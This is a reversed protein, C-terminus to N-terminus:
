VPMRLLTMMSCLLLFKLDSRYSKFTNAKGIYHQKLTVLQDSAVLANFSGYMPYSLPITLMSQFLQINLKCGDLEYVGVHVPSLRLKLKSAHFKYM